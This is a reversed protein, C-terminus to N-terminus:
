GSVIKVKKLLRPNELLKAVGAVVSLLPDDAISVSMKTEKSVLKALGSLQAGGGCLVIGREAIDSALEPPADEVAETISEVIKNISPALAERVAVSSVRITKPLGREFDRGRVVMEKEVDGIYASGLAIKIDEATREGIGLGYRTRIYNIIDLDMADGGIKLSKGSVVGGLSIIAIETTGGGIDVVMSGVSESIPLGAGLAAALGEEVLHAERAGAKHAADIVAMKEVKSIDGPVGIVVRPRPLIIRRGPKTHVQRVFHTLMACTIDFDSIVGDHMPRLVEISVPTRGLMKKASTGIAIINKNKKHRCIISPERIVIGKGKVYVFINATGLDIALDQSFRGFIKDVLPIM